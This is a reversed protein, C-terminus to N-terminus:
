KKKEKLISIGKKLKEPIPINARHANEIISITENIIYFIIVAERIFPESGLTMDLVNGVAVMAFIFIKKFIGKLGQESSLDQNIYAAILGTIYDLIVFAVLAELLSSWGGFLFSLTSGAIAVIPKIIPEAM